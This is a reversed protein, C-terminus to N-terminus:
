DCFSILSSSFIKCIIKGLLEQLQKIGRDFGNKNQEWGNFLIFPYEDNHHSIKTDGINDRTISHKDKGSGDDLGTYDSWYNGELLSKSYWFNECIESEDWSQNLNEVFNNHYFTNNNSEYCHIGLKNAQLMNEKFTNSKSHHIFIGENNDFLKNNIISSNETWHLVIGYSSSNVENDSITINTSHGIQIPDGNRIKINNITCNTVNGLTIHNTDVGDLSLNKVGFIYYVPKGNITNTADISNRAEYSCRCPGGYITELNTGHSNWISNNKLINDYSMFLMIGSRINDKVTNNLLYNNNGRDIYIGFGFQVVNCNKISSSSVSELYIGAYDRYPFGIIDPGILLANNCDLKTNNSVIRVGQNLEYTGRCFTTDRAILM